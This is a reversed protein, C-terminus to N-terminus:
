SNGTRTKATGSRTGAEQYDADQCAAPSSPQLVQISEVLTSFASPTRPEQSEGSGIRATTSKWPTFGHFIERREGETKRGKLDIFIFHFILSLRKGGDYIIVCGDFYFLDGPFNLFLFHFLLSLKGLLVM